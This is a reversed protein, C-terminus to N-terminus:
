NFIEKFSLKEGALTIVTPPFDETNQILSEYYESYDEPTEPKEPPKMGIFILDANKSYRYITQFSDEEDQGVYVELDAEIRSEKIFNRLNELVGQREEESRVLSKLFLRSGMWEQSTQLMYALTLMLTANNHQRGWWVDITKQTPNKHREQAPNQEASEPSELKKHKGERVVLLNKHAEYARHIIVSYDIYNEEKETEGLVLTNPELPRFGYDHILSEVADVFDESYKVKVLAPVQRKELFTRISKELSRIKEQELFPKLVVSAITLFGKGHTIADALEILYWRSTPSGSLVLMNPRWTKADEEHNALRYISTRAAFLLLGRRMDSWGANLRRKHMLLYLFGCFLLAIFTAGPNIMLMIGFCAFAGILSVAWPTKFQPRWSPNGIMGELGAILNLAGYSTLFFMSLVSAIIDLGGMSIGAFAVLFTIVTAIRPDSKKGFGKGIFPPVIRDIALAQLTRPAGLLAGLASSLTAGWIGAFIIPSFLAVDRLIMPNTQLESISANNWLFIPIVLYVVFGTLVAAITGLPLSKGPNKLDGSMSIGAEIGTVAPFFVAFVAWFSLGSSIPETSRAAVLTAETPKGLFFSVLSLIIVGFILIQARLALDASFYTLLTLLILSVMAISKVPLDPALSHISEAFGTIYFSIGLVQALYLPLGISAGAEIGFSRSVMFYAGGGKVKMNTATAAISLGTLFTISSALTVIILTGFLGVNGVVWGMRLYMIVGLITLISPVYVGKFTGFQHKHTEEATM